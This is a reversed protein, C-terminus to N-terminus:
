SLQFMCELGLFKVQNILQATPVLASSVAM